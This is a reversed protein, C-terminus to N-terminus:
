KRGAFRVRLTLAHGQGGSFAHFCGQAVSSSCLPADVNNVVTDPNQRGFVNVAEIRAAWLYGRLAFKRELGLNLNVYAPFRLSNAPGFLQQQLNVASFPYGTRYELFFSLQTSWIHTPAWGWSLFRNPADWALPGSQQAVYFISGLAPNVVEDSRARSRTFAGFVEMSDSFVHRVSITASRYRDKRHDQLLFIGGPQAPQQDVFAFGHYGNRALLELGVLTNRGIKEQWGASSITFRPQHLGSTPLVFQSTVSGPPMVNGTSDYFTDVQQQDFVQAILALNLPANYIGWGVSLKSRDDAFPLFNVSLRPEVMASQTFRDWDARVGPQLVFRKSLSWTDQVYGGAQTNSVTPNAAGTFTSRRVLCGPVPSTCAAGGMLSNSAYLADIEGREASQTYRLGAVNFGAAFQHTGLGGHSVATVGGVGQLRRGRDHLHQFYNGVTGNILLIFPQSGQPIYEITGDDVAVGADFLANHFWIQDKLSVFGRRQEATVTTTQPDLADLGLNNDHARNYLFSAHLIHRPTINYQLRLLNDGAWEESTDPGPRLQKVVAFTHQVSISDSFWFRGRQIPGSFTFRPYWNGLHAGEQINIGPAPNTTGVRWRDDGDPTELSLISAGSHAYAAGVRGTQIEAARTADVNFRSTLAGSAPDGIEFGDLLYQTDSSRAGAVHLNDRNDRVIEPLAVLSERLIHVSPVPIDRIDRASLAARQATDQTDIQNPRATVKIQERIEEEHNLILSVENEGGRLTLGQGALVFFGEKRVEAKYDGPALDHLAFHGTGDTEARYVHGSVDQLKVQAAVVPVGTEDLVVGKCDASDAAVVPVSAPVFLSVLLIACLRVFWM